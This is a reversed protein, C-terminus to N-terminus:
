CRETTTTIFATSNWYLQSVIKSLCYKNLVVKLKGFIENTTNLSNCSVVLCFAVCNLNKDPTLFLIDCIIIDIKSIM